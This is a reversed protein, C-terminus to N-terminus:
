VPFEIRERIVVPRGLAKIIEFRSLYERRQDRTLSAFHQAETMDTKVLEWHPAVRPQAKLEAMKAIAEQAAGLDGKQMAESGIQGLRAIEDSITDGAIFVREWHPEEDDCMRETVEEELDGVRISRAGCGKRQPGHGWCCYYSGALGKKPVLYMPSKGSPCGEREEGYCAACYPIFLAKDRVVTGRGRSARSALAANAEQWVTPSVLAEVEIAGGNRLYGYYVPNKILIGNLYNENWRNGSATKIGAVDLMQSVARASKGNIISEFIVPIWKRGEETPVFHKIHGCDKTEHLEPHNECQIRYGWSPRTVISGAARRAALGAKIREGKRKSEQHAMTAALALMVDNMENTENLHPELVYEIRGGANRAREALMFAAFAGRREIRDSAWVVLVTYKGDAMDNFARDLDKDQQGHYASKGHVTYCEDPDYDYEHTDCWKVCDPLQNAEDQRGTSVRLWIRAKVAM